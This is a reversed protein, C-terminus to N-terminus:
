AISYVRSAQRQGAARAGRGNPMRMARCVVRYPMASWILAVAIDVHLLLPLPRAASVRPRAGEARAGTTMMM